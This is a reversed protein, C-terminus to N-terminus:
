GGPHDQSTTNVPKIEFAQQGKAFLFSRVCIVQYGLVCLKIVESGVICLVLDHNKFVVTLHSGNKQLMRINQQSRLAYLSVGLNKFTKVDNIGQLM